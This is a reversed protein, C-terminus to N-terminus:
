TLAANTGPGSPGQGHVPASRARSMASAAYARASRPAVGALLALCALARRTIDDFPMHDRWAATHGIPGNDM